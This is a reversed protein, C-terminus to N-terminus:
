EFAVEITTMTVTPAVLPLTTTVVFTGILTTVNVTVIGGDIVDRAGVDPATPLETVIVPVFKPAVWPDLVTANLPVTAVDIVLQLRDRSTASGIEPAVVPLTTTVVFEGLLPTVNVMVTGGVIVDSDGVDPGIPVDTVIVPVLK